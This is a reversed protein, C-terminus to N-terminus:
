QPKALQRISSAPEAVFQTAGNEPTITQEVSAAHRSLALEVTM